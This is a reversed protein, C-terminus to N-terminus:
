PVVTVPVPSTQVLNAVVSGFLMSKLGTEGRRGIFVQAADHEEALRSLTEAPHGHHVMTKCNVKAKKLEAAVPEVVSKLAKTVEEDRRKHREANEEPTNFSYPSWEIM